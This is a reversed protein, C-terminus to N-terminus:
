VSEYLKLLVVLCVKDKGWILNIKNIQRSFGRYPTEAGNKM